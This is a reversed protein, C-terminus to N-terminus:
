VKRTMGFFEDKELLPEVETPAMCQRGTGRVKKAWGLDERGQEVGM